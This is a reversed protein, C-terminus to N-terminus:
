WAEGLARAPDAAGAAQVWAASAAMRRRADPHLGVARGRRAVEVLDAFSLSNGDILLPADGDPPASIPREADPLM